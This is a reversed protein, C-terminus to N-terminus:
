DNPECQRQPSPRAANFGWRPLIRAPIREHAAAIREILPPKLLLEELRAM